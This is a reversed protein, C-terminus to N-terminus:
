GGVLENLEATLKETLEPRGHFQAPTTQFLAVSWEGGERHAVVTQVANRDPIIGGGDPPPMGAVAHLLAADEGLAKVSRVKTVYAATEHDAFIRGLEAAVADRGHLQSGDFGVMLADEALPAAMAAAERANWGAILRGYLSEAAQAADM